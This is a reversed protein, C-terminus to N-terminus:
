AYYAFPVESATCAVNVPLWWTSRFFLCMKSVICYSFHGCCHSCAANRSFQVACSWVLFSLIGV